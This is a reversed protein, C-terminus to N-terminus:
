MYNTAPRLCDSPLSDYCKGEFINFNEDPYGNCYEYGSYICGYCLGEYNTKEAGLCVGLFLCMLPLLHKLEM